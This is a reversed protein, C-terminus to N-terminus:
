HNNTKYVVVPPNYRVKGRGAFAQACGMVIKKVEEPGKNGLPMSLPIVNRPRGRRSWRSQIHPFGRRFLSWESPTTAGIEFEVRYEGVGPETSTIITTKTEAM